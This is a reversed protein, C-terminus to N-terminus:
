FLFSYKKHEQLLEENLAKEENREIQEDIQDYDKQNLDESNNENIDFTSNLATQTSKTEENLGNFKNIVEKLQSLRAQM